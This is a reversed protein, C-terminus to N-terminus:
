NFEVKYTPLSAHKGGKPPDNIWGGGCNLPTTSYHQLWGFWPLPTKKESSVNEACESWSTYLTEVSSASLHFDVRLFSNIWYIMWNLLIISVNTGVASTDTNPKIKVSQLLIFTNRDMYVHLYTKPSHMFISYIFADIKHITLPISINM